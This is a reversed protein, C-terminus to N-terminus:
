FNTAHQKYRMSAKYFCSYSTQSTSLPQNTMVDKNKGHTKTKSQQKAQKSALMLDSKQCASEEGFLPQGFVEADSKLARATSVLASQKSYEQSWWGRNKEKNDAM